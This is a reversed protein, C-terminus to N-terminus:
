DNPGDEDQLELPENLFNLEGTAIERYAQFAKVPSWSEYGDPYVVCFGEEDQEPLPRDKMRAFEWATMPAAKIVKTGIYNKFKM